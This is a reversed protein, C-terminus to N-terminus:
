TRDVSVGDALRYPRTSLLGPVQRRIRHIETRVAVDSDGPGYVAEGLDRASLGEPSLALRAVLAARRGVLVHTWAHGPAGVTVEVRGVGPRVVIPVDGRAPGGRPLLLWGTGLDVADTEGLEGVVLSEDMTEPLTLRGPPTLGHAGAVWGWRDVAVWRAAAGAQAEATAGLKALSRRHADRLELEAQRALSSALVVASPHAESALFSLDIAGLARGDRPDVIPAAACSWRHQAFCYHEAAHVHVPARTALATGIANTGVSRESWVGGPRFGLADAHGLMTRGGGRWVVHARADTLVLLTRDDELLPELQVRLMPLLSMLIPADAGAATRGGAPVGAATRAGGKGGDAAGGDGARDAIPPSAADAVEGPLGGLAPHLGARRVRRWSQEIVPRPKAAARRGELFAGHVAELLALYERSNQGSAFATEFERM